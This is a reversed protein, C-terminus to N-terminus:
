KQWRYELPQGPLPAAAAVLYRNLEILAALQLADAQGDLGLELRDGVLGRIRVSHVLELKELWNVIGAYDAYSSVGSVNVAIIGPASASPLVAYRSAMEHAVLEVGESMFEVPTAVEAHRDSRTDRYFYSWDGVWIDDARQVLRASVVHERAYRDSAALLLSSSYQQVDAPRLAASDALDYVPLQLPVGRQTFSQRLSQVLEPDSDAGLFREGGAADEVVVWALVAPRNATWLPEQAQIVTGTVFDADFEVRVQLGEGVKGAALYSYQQVQSRADSVAGVIQPNALIDRSGSVKVFVAGLGQQAALVLASAGQDRVPVTAGYLGDVIEASVGASCALFVIFVNLLRRM